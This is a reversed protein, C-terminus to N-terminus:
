GKYFLPQKRWDKDKDHGYKEVRPRRGRLRISELALNLAYGLGLLEDQRVFRSAFTFHKRVHAEIQEGMFGIVFIVEEPQLRVIPDLIHDIIPRGAVHLLPKPQSYTHPRLRTGIGAVPVIVKM